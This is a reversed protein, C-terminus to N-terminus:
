CFVMFIVMFDKWLIDCNDNGFQLQATAKYCLSLHTCALMEEPTPFLKTTKWRINNFLYGTSTSKLSYSTSYIQVSLLCKEIEIHFCPIILIM